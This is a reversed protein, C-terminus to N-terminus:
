MTAQRRLHLSAIIGFGFCSLASTPYMNSVISINTTTVAVIETMEPSPRSNQGERAELNTLVSAITAVSQITESAM